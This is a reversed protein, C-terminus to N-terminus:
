CYHSWLQALQLTKHLIWLNRKNLYLIKSEAWRVENVAICIAQGFSAKAEAIRGLFLWTVGIFASELLWSVTIVM